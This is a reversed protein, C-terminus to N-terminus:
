QLVQLSSTFHDAIYKMLSKMQLLPVMLLSPWGDQCLHLSAQSASLLTTPQPSLCSNPQAAAFPEYGGLILGEWGKLRMKKVLFRALRWPREGLLRCGKGQGSWVEGVVEWRGLGLSQSCPPALASMIM